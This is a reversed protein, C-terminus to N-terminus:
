GKLFSDFQKELTASLNLDKGAFFNKRHKRRTKPKVNQYIIWKSNSETHPSLDPDLTQKQKTKNQKTQM